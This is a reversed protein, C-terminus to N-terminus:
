RSLPQQAPIAPAASSIVAVLEAYSWVLKGYSIKGNTGFQIKNLAPPVNPAALLNKAKAEVMATLQAADEPTPSQAYITLSVGETGVTDLVLAAFQVNKVPLPLDNKKSNKFVKVDCAFTIAPEGTINFAKKAQFMVNTNGSKLPSTLDVTETSLILQLMDKNLLTVGANINQDPKFTIARKSVEKFDPRSKLEKPMATWFKMAASNNYKSVVRATFSVKGGDKLEVGLATISRADNITLGQTQLQKKVEGLLPAVIPCDIIKNSNLVAVFQSSAPIRGLLDDARLAAATLFLLAFSLAPILKKM